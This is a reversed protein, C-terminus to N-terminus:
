SRGFAEAAPNPCPRFLSRGCHTKGRQRTGAAARENGRASPRGERTSNHQPTSHRYWRAMAARRTRRRKPFARCTPRPGSRYSTTQAGRNMWCHTSNRNCQAWLARHLLAASRPAGLTACREAGNRDQLASLPLNPRHSQGCRQAASCQQLREEVCEARRPGSRPSCRRTSCSTVCAPISARSSPMRRRCAPLSTTGSSGSRRAGACCRMGTLETGDDSVCMAPRGRQAIIIELQERLIAIIQEETLRSPKM